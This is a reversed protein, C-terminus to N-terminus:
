APNEPVGAPAAFIEMIRDCESAYRNWGAFTAYICLYEWFVGLRHGRFYPCLPDDGPENQLPISGDAYGREYAKDFEDAEETTVRFIWCYLAELIEHGWVAASFRWDSMRAVEITLTGKNNPESWSWYGVTVFGHPRSDVTKFKIKM